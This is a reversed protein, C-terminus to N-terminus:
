SAARILASSASFVANAATFFKKESANLQCRVYDFLGAKGPKQKDFFDRPNNLTAGKVREKLSRRNM